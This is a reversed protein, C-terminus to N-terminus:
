GGVTIEPMFALITVPLPDTQRYFVRGGTDWNTAITKKYDGTYLALKNNLPNMSELPIKYLHNADPGILGGRSLLFKTTV